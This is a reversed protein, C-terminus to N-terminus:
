SVSRIPAALVRKIQLTPQSFNLLLGHRLNLARLYSRVIAFHRDDLKQVAKLEVVFQDFVVFDPRHRGVVRGRYLVRCEDERRFPIERVGLEVALSEAYIMELFGPGLARHVEIGAGIIRGTLDAGELETGDNM